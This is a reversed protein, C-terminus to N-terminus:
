FGLKDAAQLSRKVMLGSAAGTQVIQKTTMRQGFRDYWLLVNPCIVNAGQTGVVIGVSGDSLEVMSGSPYMGVSLLLVRIVKPDFHAAMAGTMISLAERGHMPEKYVRKATLADFVDAVAAIRAEITLTGKDLGDPYGGGGYREHHRKIVDLARQDEVGSEAALDVGLMPHQKMVAFEEDTLKSPKNLVAHPVKAKGLDHLIGGVTMFEALEPRGPFLKEALFGSLLAVNVSHVSTYEDWNRVHGLCFMLHPAKAIRKALVQGQSAVGRVDETSYGGDKIHDLVDGVQTVTQYALEPEIPMVGPEIGRVFASIERREPAGPLVVSITAFGMMSLRKQLTKLSGKLTSVPTGRAVLIAGTPGTIDHAVVAESDCFAELADVPIERAIGADLAGGSAGENAEMM